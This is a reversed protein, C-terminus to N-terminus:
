KILITTTQLERARVRLWAGQHGQEAAKKFWYFAKEKDGAGLYGEAILNQAGRAGSKAADVCIDFAEQETGVDFQIAM